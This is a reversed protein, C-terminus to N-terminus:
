SRDRDFRAASGIAALIEDERAHMAAYQGPDHDDHGDLHLLGHVVYLLLEDRAAHGRETAQRTAEDVCVAIDVDIAEEDSAPFTLVDTTEDIDMHRRHLATMEADDVCRVSIRTVARGLHPLTAAVRDRLWLADDPTVVGGIEISM